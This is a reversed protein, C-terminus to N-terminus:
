VFGRSFDITRYCFLLSLSLLTCYLTALAATKVGTQLTVLTVIRNLRLHEVVLAWLLTELIVFGFYAYDDVEVKHFVETHFRVYSAIYFAVGPIAFFGITVWFQVINISRKPM